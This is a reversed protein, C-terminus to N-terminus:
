YKKWQPNCHSAVTKHIRKCGSNSFTKTDDKTMALAIIKRIDKETPEDPCGNLIYEKKICLEVHIQELPLFPVFHDIVHSAILKSRHLGGEINYAGLQAVHQFDKLGTEDRYRGAVMISKLTKTIEAGASNSLFIFVSKSFDHDELDSHHDLLSVIPDFVGKPMLEIEDFIFLSYPCNKVAEKVKGALDKDTTAATFKKVFKSRIGNKFLATAVFGAVYNKGTGSPGHFSMVLPKRSSEIKDFHARIANVVVDQVIHQGFVHKKFYLELAAASSKPDPKRCCEYIRCNLSVAVAALGTLSAGVIVGTSIVIANGCLILALLVSLVLFSPKM